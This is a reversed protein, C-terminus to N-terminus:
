KQLINDIDVSSQSDILQMKADKMYTLTCIKCLDFSQIEIHPGAYFVIWSNSRFETFKLLSEPVDM